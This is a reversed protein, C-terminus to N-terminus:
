HLLCNGRYAPNPDLRNLISRRTVNTQFNIRLDSNINLFHHIREIIVVMQLRHSLYISLALFEEIIISQPGEVRCFEVLVFKGKIIVNNLLEPLECYFDKISGPMTSLTLLQNRIFSRQRKYFSQLRIHATDHSELLVDVVSEDGLEATSRQTLSGM